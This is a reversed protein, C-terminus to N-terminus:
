DTHGDLYNKGVSELVADPGPQRLYMSLDAHLRAIPHPHLLGGAGVSRRALDLCCECAEAVVTRVRNAYDIIIATDEGAATLEGARALWLRGTEVQMVMNAVRSRQHPDGTRGSRRLANRTAELVAEAGGLQVAAFRIAGGSFAPERVYDNPQGLLDRAALPLGTFNVKHSVSNRMGAPTWFQEDVQPSHRDLPLVAMQWGTDKGEENHLAGTILPRTVHLSGSCFSKSGEIRYDGGANFIFRVGDNMQTNWVGFLHGAEAEAYWRKQQTPSAYLGILHLANVHGEYLRGVSLNGRGIARLQRLLLPTPRTCLHPTLGGAERLAAFERHPFGGHAFTEAAWEQMRAPLHELPSGGNTATLPDSSLSPTRVM